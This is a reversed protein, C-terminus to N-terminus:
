DQLKRLRDARKKTIDSFKHGCGSCKWVVNKKGRRKAIADLGLPELNASDCKPCLPKIKSNM